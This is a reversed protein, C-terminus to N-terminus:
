FFEKKFAEHRRRAMDMLRAFQKENRVSNLLLDTVFYPYAFFGNEISYGLVRLASSRDGLTAFAQGIKYIAEPDGVGREKISTEAAYLLELGQQAQNSMGYSFAKGVQSHLLSSDLEYARDFHAAAQKRNSKYYEALGRYFVIFASYDNRPLSQLFRDYQGLYLYSNIASSNIKVGPDLQRARQFESVSEPLLGAFRYAYGLEWHAEAHNPNTELAKRLLPVAQEVRNTDTFMNAMYVLTEIQTPQLSLAKEYAQQARLYQPRGGFEFSGTANYSRGLHAWALSYTPSIEVSKSLMKIAMQFENRSYLDVGRLYYEYALPDIPWEAKLQEAEIPSLSLQMRKVIERAVEDQVSLLKEYKVDFAEKWLIRQTRVDILESTIRLDNGDRVFNGTLLSDVNLDAGVKRVDM